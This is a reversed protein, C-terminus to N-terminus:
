DKSLTKIKAEDLHLDIDEFLNTLIKSLKLNLKIIVAFTARCIKM